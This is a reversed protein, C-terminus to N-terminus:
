VAKRHPTVPGSAPPSPPGHWRRPERPLDDREDGETLWRLIDDETPRHIAQVAVRFTSDCKPCHARHGVSRDPVQYATNCVPCHTSVKGQTSM